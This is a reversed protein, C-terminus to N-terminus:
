TDTLGGPQAPSSIMSAHNKSRVTWHASRGNILFVAAAAATLVARMVLSNYWKRARVSLHQLCVMETFAILCAPCAIFRFFGRICCLFIFLNLPSEFMDLLIEFVLNLFLRSNGSETIRVSLRDQWRRM